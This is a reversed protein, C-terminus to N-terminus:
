DSHFLLLPIKLDKGIKSTSSGTLLRELLSEKQIILMMLNIKNTQIHTNIAHHMPVNTIASYSFPIEILQEKLLRTDTNEDTEDMESERVRLIHISNSFTKVFKMVDIFAKGGILDSTDLPLLVEKPKVYEFGIPIVLTDCHVKRIVNLTNSGFVAEKVGSIGNSGMVILDILNSAINQKISDIFDDFDVTTEFEFHETKFKEKLTRAIADLKDKENKILSDYISQQGGTMLDDTTYLGSDKVHLITFHCRNGKFLNLAYHMANTADESFDTLLLIQKM